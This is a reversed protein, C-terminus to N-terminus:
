IVAAFRFFTVSLRNGAPELGIAGLLICSFADCSRPMISNLFHYKIRDPHFSVTLACVEAELVLVTLCLREKRYRFILLICPNPLSEEM